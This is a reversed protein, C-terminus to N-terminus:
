GTGAPARTAAPPQGDPEVELRGSSTRVIRGREFQFVSWRQTSRWIWVTAVVAALAVAATGAVRLWTSPPVDGVAATVGEVADAVAAAVLVLAFVSLWRFDRHLSPTASRFAGLDSSAALALMAGSPTRGRDPDIPRPDVTGARARPQPRPRPKPEPKPHTRAVPHGADFRLALLALGLCALSLVGFLVTGTVAVGEIGKGDVVPVAVHRVLLTGGVLASIWCGTWFAGVANDTAYERDRWTGVAAFGLRLAGFGLLGVVVVADFGRVEGARFLAIGGALLAAAVAAYTAALSTAAARRGTSPDDM